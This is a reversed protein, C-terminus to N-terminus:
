PLWIGPIGQSDLALAHIEEEKAQYLAFAKVDLDVKYIIGQGETGAYLWQSRVVVVDQAQSSDYLVTGTGDPLFKIFKVLAGIGRMCFIMQGLCRIGFM